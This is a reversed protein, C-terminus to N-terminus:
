GISSNPLPLAKTARAELFTHFEQDKPSRSYEWKGELTNGLDTLTMTYRIQFPEQSPNPWTGSMVLQRGREALRWRSVNGDNYFTQAYLGAADKGIIEICAAPQKGFHGDLRHVLFHGGDLWEFTEVAVFPSAPGLPGEIQAGETHWKGVLPWLAELGPACDISAAHSM